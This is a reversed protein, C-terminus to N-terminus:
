SKNVVVDLVPKSNKQAITAFLGHNPLQNQIWAKTLQTCDLNLDIMKRKKTFVVKSKFIPLRRIKPRRRRVSNVDWGGAVRHFRIMAKRRKRSRVSLRLTASKIETNAPLESLSYSFLTGARRKKRRKLRKFRDPQLRITSEIPANIVVGDLSVHRTSPHIAYSKIPTRSLDVVEPAPQPIKNHLIQEERKYLWDLRNSVFPLNHYQEVYARGNQGIQRSLEHNELLNRVTAYLNSPNASVVPLDSGFRYKVDERVFCVVPKGLAMAEVALVGYSGSLVQDIIIDAKAYQQLAESYSVRDMRLYRFGVGDARLRDLTEEIYETGKFHPNSPAHVILPQGDGSPEVPQKDSLDTVIPLVYVRNYYPAVYPVVEFDQVICAPFFDAEQRIRKISEEGNFRFVEIMLMFPNHRVAINFDRVDDGHYHMVRVKNRLHKYEERNDTISLGYHFHLIDYKDRNSEFIQRLQDPTVNEIDSQYGFYTNDTNYASVDYNLDSLGKKLLSMQGSIEIPGQFVKM